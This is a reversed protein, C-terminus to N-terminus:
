DRVHLCAEDVLRPYAWNISLVDTTISNTFLKAIIVRFSAPSPGYKLFHKPSPKINLALIRVGKTRFLIQPLGDKRLSSRKETWGIFNPRIGRASFHGNM